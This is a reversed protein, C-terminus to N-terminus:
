TWIESIYKIEKTDLKYQERPTKLKLPLAQAQLSHPTLNNVFVHKCQNCHNRSSFMMGGTLLPMHPNSLAMPTTDQISVQSVIGRENSILRAPIPSLQYRSLSPHSVFFLSYQISHNRSCIWKQM